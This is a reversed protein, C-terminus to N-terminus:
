NFAGPCNYHRNMRLWDKETIYERQGMTGTFNKLPIITPLGNKTYSTPGYHMVSVYDYDVDYNNIRSATYVDFNHESGSKVNEEAIHVYDDRDSTAHMHIFGLIHMFEHVITAHRFCGVGVTNRGLNMTHAGRSIRYGIHAYCGDTVGTLRAYVFDTPERYRFKICTHAEIDRIGEWIAAQQLADFEGDGFEFVVTNDPWTTISSTTYASRGVSYEQIMSEYDVDDLVIDGQFRGSLEEVNALSSMRSQALALYNEGNGKRVSDLYNIFDQIDKKSRMVAPGAAALGLVVVVFLVSVRFMDVTDEFRICVYWRGIQAKPYLYLATDGACNYHRNVRLWDNKTVYNRQGMLGKDDYIPLLTAEGNKSFGVRSYHMVSDYEYPLGLNDVTNASYRMFNHETGALINDWMVNVYDDRNHTSQMHQFGIVHLWEHIITNHRFCGFGPTNRALNFSHVGRPAWYGVSAFCGSPNATVRVYNTDAPKRRRFKICTNKEVDKIGDLIAAEQAKDFEPAIEYVITNHPWTTNPWIYANTGTAFQRVLDQVQEEDLLIDGQFKGSNEWESALPNALMRAELFVGNDTRSNDLFAEFAQIEQRTRVLSPGGVVCGIVSVLVLYFM